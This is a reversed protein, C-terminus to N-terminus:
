TPGEPGHCQEIGFYFPNIPVTGPSMGTTTPTLESDLPMNNARARPEVNPDGPGAHSATGWGMLVVTGDDPVAFQCLPGPKNSNPGDGTYLYALQDHDKGGSGFNHIVVGRLPGWGGPTASANAGAHNRNHTLWDDRDKYFRWSVGWEHLAALLQDPTVSTSM